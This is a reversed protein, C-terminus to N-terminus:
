KTPCLIEPRENWFTDGIIDLSFEAIMASKKDGAEAEDDDDHRRKKLKVLTTGKRFQELENNYNLDFQSFLIENKDKALTGKLREQAENNNLGGKQILTWFTTNYLNNIHCDAQRWSLYDRLNKDTPYLVARADFSPVLMLPTSDKDFYSSWHYTYAAAFLSVLNTTIKASRRRYLTTTRRFVFSYEDSQGYALVIDPLQSMVVEASKNMLDLARKDNPKVFNHKDAFKHFGKGDLRVVIWANPLLTDDMEFRKVYEYKSLAM